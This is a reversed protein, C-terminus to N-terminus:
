VTFGWGLQQTSGGTAASIALIVKDTPIWGAPYSPAYTTTTSYTTNSTLIKSSETYYYDSDFCPNPVYIDIAYDNTLNMAAYNPTPLPNGVTANSNGESTQYFVIDSTNANLTRAGASNFEEVGKITNIDAGSLEYGTWIAPYSGFNLNKDAAGSSVKYIIASTNTAGGTPIFRTWGSLAFGNFNVLYTQGLVVLINGATPNSPFTLTNVNSLGGAKQVISIAM